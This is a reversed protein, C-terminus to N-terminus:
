LQNAVQTKSHLHLHPSDQRCDAIPCESDRSLLFIVMNYGYDGTRAM